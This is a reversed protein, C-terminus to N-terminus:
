RKVFVLFYSHAVRAHRQTGGNPGEMRHRAGLVFIDKLRFGESEAWLFVKIHTPHHRHNHIIDQCKVILVGNKELKRHFCSISHIYHEELEQYTYYGGFRRTMVCKNNHSRGGKVYTLFPPDFMISRLSCDEVPLDQSDAKLVGDVQPDIDFKLIPAQLDKYFSGNGYTADCHIEGNCHLDLIGRLIKSQDESYSLIQRPKKVSSRESDAFLSYSM